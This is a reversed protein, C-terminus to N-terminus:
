CGQEGKLGSANGLQKKYHLSDTSCKLLQTPQAGYAKFIQLRGEQKNNDGGGFNQLGAKRFHSIHGVPLVQFSKPFYMFM